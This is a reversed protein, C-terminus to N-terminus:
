CSSSCLQSSQMLSRVPDLMDRTQAQLQALFTGSVFRSLSKSLPDEEPRAGGSADRDAFNLPNSSCSWAYWTNTNAHSRSVHIYTEYPLLALRSLSKGDHTAAPRPDAFNLPNNKILSCFWAYWTNPDTFPRSVPIYTEYALRSLNVSNLKMLDFTETLM